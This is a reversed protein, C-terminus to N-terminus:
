RTAHVVSLPVVACLVTSNHGKTWQTASYRQQGKQHQHDTNAASPEPAAQGDGLRGHNEGRRTFHGVWIQVGIFVDFSLLKGNNFQLCNVAFRM